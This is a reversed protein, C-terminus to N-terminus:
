RNPLMVIPMATLQKITADEAMESDEEPSPAYSLKGQACTALKAAGNVWFIIQRGLLGNVCRQLSFLYKKRMIIKYVGEEFGSTRPVESHSRIQIILSCM